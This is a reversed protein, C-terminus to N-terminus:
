PAGRQRPEAPGIGIEAPGAKSSMGRRRALGRRGCRRAGGRSQRRFPERASQRIPIGRPRARRSRKRRHHASTTLRPRRIRVRCRSGSRPRSAHHETEDRKDAASRRRTRPPLSAATRTCPRPTRCGGSAARHARRASARRRRRCDRERESEADGSGHNGVERVAEGDRQRRLVQQPREGAHREPGRDAHQRADAGRQGDRQQQRDGVREIRGRREDHEGADVVAAHVASRRRRDQQIRRALARRHHGRHLAVSIARAPRAPAASAVAAIPDNTAPVSAVAASVTHAGSM